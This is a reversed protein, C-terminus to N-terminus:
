RFYNRINAKNTVVLMAIAALLLFFIFTNIWGSRKSKALLRENERKSDQLHKIFEAKDSAKIAAVQKQFDKISKNEKERFNDTLKKIENNDIESLQAYQHELQSRSSEIVRLQSKLTEVDHYTQQLTDNM